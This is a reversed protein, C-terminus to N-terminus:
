NDPHAADWDALSMAPYVAVNSGEAFVSWRPEVGNLVTWKEGYLVGFDVDLKLSRIPRVKWIPHEVRYCMTEHYHNVGFGIDHEKFYHEPTHQAPTSLSAEAVVDLTHDRGGRHLVHKLFLTGAIEKRLSSEMPTSVYPENYVRNAVLAICPKPVYERIFAVAVKGKHRVYYRLNVEPFDVHFPIRIGKVKTNLFDFAVFSVHAQGEYIDLEIGPPLHPMLLDPSVGYTLNVLNRWEATLFPKM